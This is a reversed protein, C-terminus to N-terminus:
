NASNGFELFLRFEGSNMARRAESDNGEIWINLTYAYVYYNTGSMEITNKTVNNDFDSIKPSAALTPVDYTGDLVAPNSAYATATGSLPDPFLNTYATKQTIGDGNARKEFYTHVYTSGVDVPEGSRTFQLNYNAGEEDSGQTTTTIGQVLEWDDESDGEPIYLFLDPRPVWVFKKENVDESNSDKVITAENNSISYVPGGTISVRLAAVLADSTFDGYSSKRASNDGTLYDSEVEAKMALYSGSQIYIDPKQSRIFFKASFYDGTKGENIEQSTLELNSKADDATGNVNVIKGAKRAEAKATLNDETSSFAPIIFDKGDSTVDSSFSFPGNFLATGSWLNEVFNGGSYNGIKGDKLVAIEVENPLAAKVTIGDASVEKDISYWAFVAIFIVVLMVLMMISNKTFLFRRNAVGTKKKM